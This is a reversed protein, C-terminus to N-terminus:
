ECVNVRLVDFYTGQIIKTKNQYSFYQFLVNQIDGYDNFQIRRKEEIIQKQCDITYEVLEHGGTKTVITGNSNPVQVDPLDIRIWFETQNDSKKQVLYHFFTKFEFDSALLKFNSDTLSPYDANQGFSISTLLLSTILLVSKLKKQLTKKM